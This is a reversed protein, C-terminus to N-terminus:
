ANAKNASVFSAKMEMVYVPVESKQRAQDLANTAREFLEPATIRSGYEAGGIHADLNLVLDFQGLDVPQSLSQFIREFIRNAAIGPTNPLMVVFSIDDWRGIVDNGRLEKHLTDTVNKFVNQLTAVPLTDILDSIGALEIIGISMVTDPKEALVDEVRRVLFRKNFVGTMNDMNFRQRFAELPLRIQESLIALAMGIILGLLLAIASYLLPQPSVPEIPPTAIDLFDVTYVQNLRSVFKISESSITNAMESALKPDPGVVSVELVSSSSVVSANYTYAVIDAPQLKLSALTETLIRESNMVENITLVVSQKDLTSLTNVVDSRNVLDASPSVILRSIAEYQPVAIFSAGLAGVLAFLMTLLIIWWGRRLMQFYLRLEM